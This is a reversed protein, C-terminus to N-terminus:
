LDIRKDRKYSGPGKQPTEIKPPKPTTKQQRLDMVRRLLKMKLKTKQKLQRDLESATHVAQDFMNIPEGEEGNNRKHLYQKVAGSLMVDYQAKNQHWVETSFPDGLDPDKAPGHMKSMFHYAARDQADYSKFVKEKPFVVYHKKEKTIFDFSPIGHQYEVKESVYFSM